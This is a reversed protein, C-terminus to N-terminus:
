KQGRPTAERSVGNVKEVTRAATLGLMGMIIPSLLAFDMTPITVETLADVYPAVLYNNALALGGVWGIFPRWGAVFVSSHKAEAQNIRIQALQAQHQQKSGMTAIEHALRNAEDKDPVVKGILEAIPDVLSGFFKDIM